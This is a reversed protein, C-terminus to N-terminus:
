KDPKKPWRWTRFFSAMTEFFSASMALTTNKGLRTAVSEGEDPAFYPSHPSSWFMQPDAQQQVVQAQQPPAPPPATYGQHPPMVPMHV